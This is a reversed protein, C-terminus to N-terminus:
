KKLEASPASSATKLEAAIKDTEVPHFRTSVVSHKTGEGPEYKIYTTAVVTGDPLVEVGPYGCDGGKYSHLLKLRYDGEGGSVIDQYTGIWAVFNAKTPSKAGTDRFCVVLRGDPLYAAKHRHGYLGPPLPKAASWTKGEDDSTMFLAINRKNERLLCLLQKGDPSRVVEPECPKLSGLDLIIKWPSWTLGGDASISQTIVNSKKDMKEGPRRINTLGLLQQGNNIPVITCFPMICRLGNSEMPSWTKGDDTSYSEAMNGDTGQGAFVFLRSVGSPDSLRYLSPCNRVENWNAPVDLLPSWTSGGDDSRKMPGCKGGHGHTWVCYMTKGDPLLLTTPHGQYVEASGAQVVVHRSKDQSLDVTVLKPKEPTLRALAEAEPAVSSAGSQIDTLLLSAELLLCVMTATVSM